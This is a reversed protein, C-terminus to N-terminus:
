GTNKLRPFSTIRLKAAAYPVLNITEDHEVSEVPGEALTGAVGGTAVWSPLLRAKVHLEIAAGESDFPKETLANESVTIQQSVASPDVALAYNWQSIPYVQWDATM